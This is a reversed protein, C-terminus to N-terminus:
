NKPLINKAFSLNPVVCPLPMFDLRRQDSWSYGGRAKCNSNLVQEDHQIVFSDALRYYSSDDFPALPIPNGCGCCNVAFCLVVGRM